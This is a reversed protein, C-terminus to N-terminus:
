VWEVPFTKLQLPHGNARAVTIAENTKQEAIEFNYNGAIASTNNHIEMTIEKATTINKNFVEILLKIVFEMPTYDDNYIIVNYRPPYELQTNTRTKVAEKTM